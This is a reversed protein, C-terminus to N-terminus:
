WKCFNELFDPQFNISCSKKPRGLPFNGPAVSCRFLYDQKEQHFVGFLLEHEMEEFGDKTDTERRQPRKGSFPVSKYLPLRSELELVLNVLGSSQLDNVWVTFRSTQGHLHYVVQASNGVFTLRELIM